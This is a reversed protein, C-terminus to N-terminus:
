KEAFCLSKLKCDRRRTPERSFPEQRGLPCCDCIKGSGGRLILVASAPNQNQLAIGGHWRGKCLPPKPEARLELKECKKSVSFWENLSHNETICYFSANTFLQPMTRHRVPASFSSTVVSLIDTSELLIGFLFLSKIVSLQALASKHHLSWVIREQKRTKRYSKVSQAQM